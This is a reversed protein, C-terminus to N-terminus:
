RRADLKGTVAPTVVEALAEYGRHNFHKWDEPGHVFGEAAAARLAPRADLFSAGQRRAAAAVGAAITESRRGVDRAPFVASRRWYSEIAVRPSTLRYCALPSPVYVVCVPRSPFRATLYRLAQEFVYLGQEVEAPSLELSPGQLGDPLPKERGAVRARNIKGDEWRDSVIPMPRRWQEWRYVAVNGAFRLFFFNDYWRFAARERGLPSDAVVARAIFSGFYGPDRLRGRDWGPDFRENLDRLNDDLDNGEYFYVVLRSPPPVRFFATAALYDLIGLPTGVLGSLSGNGSQGLSVVDRGTKEHLLHQSGYAGNALPDAQLFWDGFGEAYSDGLLATYDKPIVGGKSSQALVRLARPLYGHWRLPLRDLAGRFAGLELLALACALSLASLCAGSLRVRAKAKM